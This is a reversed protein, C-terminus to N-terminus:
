RRLLESQRDVERLAQDEEVARVKRSCKVLRGAVRRPRGKPLRVQNDHFPTVHTDGGGGRAESGVASRRDRCAM